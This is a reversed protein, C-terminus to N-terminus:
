KRVRRILVFHGDSIGDYTHFSFSSYTNYIKYSPTPSPTPSFRPTAGVIDQMICQLVKGFQMAKDPTLRVTEDNVGFFSYDVIIRPHWNHQPMIGMPSIHLHLHLQPDQMLQCFPLVVWQGQKIFEL